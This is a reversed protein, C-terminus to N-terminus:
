YRKSLLEEFVLVVGDPAVCALSHLHVRNGPSIMTSRCTPCTSLPFSVATMRFQTLRRAVSPLSGRQGARLTKHLHRTQLILRQKHNEKTYRSLILQRVSEPFRRCSFRRGRQLMVAGAIILSANYLFLRSHSFQSFICSCLPNRLRHELLM